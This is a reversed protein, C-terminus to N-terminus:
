RGVATTVPRQPCRFDSRAISGLWSKHAISDSDLRACQDALPNSGPVFWMCGKGNWSLAISHPQGRAIARRQRAARRVVSM